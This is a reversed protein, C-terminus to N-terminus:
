KILKLVSSPLIFQDADYYIIGSIGMKKANTMMDTVFKTQNDATGISTLWVPKGYFSMLTVLSQPVASTFSQGGFNFADIGVIDVYAAGPYYDVAQNGTVNPVSDNNIVFAYKVKNGIIDHIHQYAKIVKLNSNNGVTGDWSDWNGNMEHFLSLITTVNPCLTSVYRRINADQSGNIISDLSFGTNEWYVLQTKGDNPCQNKLNGIHSDQWGDFYVNITGVNAGFAGLTLSVSPPPTVVVPPPTPAPAPHHHTRAFTLVPFLFLILITLYKKM